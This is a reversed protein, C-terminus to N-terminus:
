PAQGFESAQAPEVHAAGNVPPRLIIQAVEARRKKRYAASTARCKACRCKHKNYSSILGHTINVPGFPRPRRRPRDAGYVRDRWRAMAAKHHERFEADQQYRTSTQAANWRRLWRELAYEYRDTGDLGAFMEVIDDHLNILGDELEAAVVM